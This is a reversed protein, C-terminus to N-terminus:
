VIMLDYIAVLKMYFSNNSTFVRERKHYVHLFNIVDRVSIILKKYNTAIDYCSKGM